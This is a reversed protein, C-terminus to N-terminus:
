DLLAEFSCRGGEWYGEVLLQHYLGWSRGKGRGLLLGENVCRKHAEKRAQRM